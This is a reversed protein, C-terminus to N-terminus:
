KEGLLELTKRDEVGSYYQALVREFVSGPRSVEAFLTMSSCLKLYDPFGVIQEASLGHIKLLAAACEELRRGLIPHALYAEAEARSGIAYLQAMASSGLGAFQPFIYWMWHSRKEGARLEESVTEYSGV